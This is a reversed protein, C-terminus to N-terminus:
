TTGLLNLKFQRLAGNERLQYIFRGVQPAWTPNSLGFELYRELIRDRKARKYLANLDIVDLVGYDYLRNAIYGVLYFFDQDGALQQVVSPLIGSNNLANLVSTSSTAVLQSNVASNIFNDLFSQFTGNYSNGEDRKRRTYRTGNFSPDRSKYDRAIEFVKPITIWGHVGIHNVISGIWSYNALVSGVSNALMNRQLDVFFLETLASIGVEATENILQTMNGLSVSGNMNLVRGLLQIILNTISDMQLPSNSIQHILDLLIGSNNFMILLNELNDEFADRKTMHEDENEFDKGFCEDFKEFLKTFHDKMSEDHSTPLQPQSTPLMSDSALCFSRWVLMWILPIYINMRGYLPFPSFM